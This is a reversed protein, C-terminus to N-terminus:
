VHVLEGEIWLEGKLRTKMQKQKTCVCDNKGVAAAPVAVGRVM